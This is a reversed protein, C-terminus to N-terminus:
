ADVCSCSVYNEESDADANKKDIFKKIVLYAGIVAAAVALVILIVKIIKKYACM